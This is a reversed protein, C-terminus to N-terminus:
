GQWEMEERYIKRYRDMLEDKTYYKIVRKKGNEGMVKNLDSDLLLDSIAMALKVSDGIPVVMGSKGLKRDEGDIGYLLEGACGVDTSVVPVNCLHAELIVLPQAESISSLVLLDLSPYFYSVDGPGLFKFNNELELIEVLVRCEMFYDADEDTPGLILFQCGPIRDVVIRAARILTKIDKIPVVRGVFGVTYTPGESPKNRVLTFRGGDVGNPIIMCKKPDAGFKIQEEQNGRYLTIIKKSNLYTVRGLTGFLKIWMQKLPPLERRLDYTHVEGSYIWDADIIEIIREKTYIGHETLLLPRNNNIRLISGLIGAYGTCITHYCDAQINEFNALAVFPIAM